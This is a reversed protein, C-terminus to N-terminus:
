FFISSLISHAAIIVIKSCPGFSLSSLIGEITWSTTATKPKELSKNKLENIGTSKLHFNEKTYKFFEKFIFYISTEENHLAGFQFFKRERERYRQVLLSLLLLIEDPFGIQGQRLRPKEGERERKRPWVIM